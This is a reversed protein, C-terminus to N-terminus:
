KLSDIYINAEKRTECMKSLGIKLDNDTVVTVGFLLNNDIGRGTSLEAVGNKIKHFSDLNPTVFNNGKVVERFKRALDATQITVM